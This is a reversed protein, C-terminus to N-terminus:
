LWRRIAVLKHTLTQSEERFIGQETFRDIRVWESAHIMQKENLLLGVHSVKDSKQSFFAVDGPRIASPNVVQGKSIQQSADRPVVVGVMRFVMQMFGSCDIGWITRGGWLYPTGLFPQTLATVSKGSLEIEDDSSHSTSIYSGPSVWFNDLRQISLAIRTKSVHHKEFHHLVDLDIWGEYGDHELVIKKWTEREEIVSFREGYIIENVMESSHSPDKRMPFHSLHFRYM